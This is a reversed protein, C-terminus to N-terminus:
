INRKQPRQRGTQPEQHAHQGTWNATKAAATVYAISLVRGVNPRMGCSHFWSQLEDDTMPRSERLMFADAGSESIAIAINRWDEKSFVGLQAVSSLRSEAASVQCDQSVVPSSPRSGAEIRSDARPGPRMRASSGDPQSYLLGQGLDRAMDNGKGAGKARPRSSRSRRGPPGPRVRTSSGDLQSYLRGQGPRRSHVPAGAEM